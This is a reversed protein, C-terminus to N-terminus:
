KKKPLPKNLRKYAVLIVIVMEALIIIPRVVLAIGNWGMMTGTFISFIGGLLFGSAISMGVPTTASIFLGALTAILGAFASILFVTLEHKDQVAQWDAQCQKSEAEYAAKAAQEEATLTTGDYFKSPMQKQNQEGCYDNWDPAPFIANITTHVFITFLVAVVLAVLIKRFDIM